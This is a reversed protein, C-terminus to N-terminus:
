YGERSFELNAVLNEMQLWPDEVTNTLILLDHLKNHFDIAHKGLRAELRFGLHEFATRAEVQCDLVLAELKKLGLLSAHNVLEHILATDLKQRQFAPAVVVRVEGVHRRWGDRTMHLSADGVVRGTEVLALVAWIRDAGCQRVFRRVVDSDYVDDKFFGTCQDPPLKSFFRALEAEDSSELPRLVVTRGNKLTVRQPYEPKDM